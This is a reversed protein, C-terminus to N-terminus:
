IRLKMISDKPWNRTIEPWKKCLKVRSLSKLETPKNSESERSMTLVKPKAKSQHSAEKFTKSERSFNDFTKTTHISEQKKSTSKMRCKMGWYFSTRKTDPRLTSNKESSTKLSKKWDILKLPLILRKLKTFKNLGKMNRRLLPSKLNGETKSLLWNSKCIISKKLISPEKKKWKM